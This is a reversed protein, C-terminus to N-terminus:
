RQFFQIIAQLLAPNLKEFRRSYRYSLIALLISVVCSIVILLLAGYRFARRALPTRKRLYQLGQWFGLGALVALEPTVDALFRMTQYFYLLLTGLLLLASGSLGLTAWRLLRDEPEAARRRFLSVPPIVSFVLFPSTWLMGSTQEFLVNPSLNPLVIPQMPNYAVLFPFTAQLNYPYFLYGYLNSPLYNLSFLQVQRMDTVTLQYHLGFELPNGFRAWNYWALCALSLSLPLAMALLPEGLSPLSSAAESRVFLLYATMWFAIPLILTIRTAIALAWALGALTLMWTAAGPRELAVMTFYFGCILLFQGFLISAEYIEPDNLSWLIPSVLGTFILVAEFAWLPVDPFYRRWLKFLILVNVLFLGCASAFVIFQDGARIPHLRGLMALMVAPAPGWYIYYKGNYLSMDWPYTAQKRAADYQYPDQLALISADPKTLLSLQGHDFARALQAYYDTTTPWSTWTGVSIFFVYLTIVALAVLATLWQITPARIADRISRLHTPPPDNQL